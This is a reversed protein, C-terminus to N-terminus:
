VDTSEYLIISLFIKSVERISQTIAQLVWRKSAPQTSYLIIQPNFVLYPAINPLSFQEELGVGSEVGSGQLMTNPDSAKGSMGLPAGTATRGFTEMLTNKNM